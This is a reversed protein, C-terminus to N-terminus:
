VSGKDGLFADVAFSDSAANSGDGLAEERSPLPRTKKISVMDNM